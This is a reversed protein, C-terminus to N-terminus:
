RVHRVCLIFVRDGAFGRPGTHRAKLEVRRGNCKRGFALVMARRLRPPNMKMLKPVRSNAVASPDDAWATQGRHPLAPVNRPFDVRRHNM